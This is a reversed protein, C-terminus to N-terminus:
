TRRPLPVPSATAARLTTKDRARKAAQHRRNLARLRDPDQGDRWRRKRVADPTMSPNRHLNRPACKTGIPCPM